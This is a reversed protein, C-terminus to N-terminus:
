HDKGERKRVAFIRRGRVGQVENLAWERCARNEEKTTWRHRAVIAWGRTSPIRLSEKEWKWGCMLGEWGLWMTYAKYRSAGAELGAGLGDAPMHPHDPPTYELTTFKADLTHLCCPLSIYPM